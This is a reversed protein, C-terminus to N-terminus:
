MNHISLLFPPSLYDYTLHLCSSIYFQDSFFLHISTFSTCNNYSVVVVVISIIVFLSTSHYERLLANTLAMPGFLNVNYVNNIGKMEQYEMPLEEKAVGANNVLAIFPLNRQQCELEMRERASAVHDEITVDLIIGYAQINEDKRLKDYMEMHHQTRVGAFVCYGESALYLAAHKGIGTSAGTILIIGKDRVPFYQCLAANIIIPNTITIIIAMILFTALRDLQLFLCTALATTIFTAAILLTRYVPHAPKPRSISSHIANSTSDNNKPSSKISGAGNLRAQQTSTIGNSNDKSDTTIDQPAM